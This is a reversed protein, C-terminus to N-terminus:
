VQLRQRPYAKM